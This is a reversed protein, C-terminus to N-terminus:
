LDLQGPLLGLPLPAPRQCTSELDVHKGQASSDGFAHMLELVHYVLEPSARHPRGSRQAYAMDAVGVSRSNEAYGHTLPIESWDAAGARRVLVPGGFSNPDPV